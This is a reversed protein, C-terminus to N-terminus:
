LPKPSIIFNTPTSNTDSIAILQQRVTPDGIIKSTITQRITVAYIRSLTAQSAAFMAQEAIDGEFRRDGSVIEFRKTRINAGILTGITEIEEISVEELHKIAELAITAIEFSIAASGGREKDPSAWDVRTEVIGDQIADLFELYKSAVRSRLSRLRENLEGTNSGANMLGIFEEIASGAEFERLLSTPEASTIEVIFSGSAFGVVSLENRQAIEHAIPGVAKPNGTLAAAIANITDQMTELIKGLSKLPAETRANDAFNLSLKIFERQSQLARDQVSPEFAPLTATPLQLYEGPLPLVDSSVREVPLPTVTAQKSSIYPVRVEFVLSDEAETFALRLELGGSRIYEFRTRSMSTYLWVDAETTEDIWLALYITGAANKCALLVPKDYYEYVEILELNGLNTLQPLVDIM